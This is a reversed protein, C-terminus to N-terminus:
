HQRGIWIQAGKLALPKESVIICDTDTSIGGVAAAIPLPECVSFM